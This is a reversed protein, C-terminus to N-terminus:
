LDEKTLLDTKSGWTDDSSIFKKRVDFGGDLLANAWRKYDSSSASYSWSYGSGNSDGFRIGDYDNDKLYKLADFDLKFDIILRAGHEDRGLTVTSYGASINAIDKPKLKNNEPQKNDM